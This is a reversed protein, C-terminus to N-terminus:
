FTQLSIKFFGTANNSSIQFTWAGTKDQNENESISFSKRWNMNGYEDIVIDSFSKKDPTLIRIRIEGARCDGNVSMVVTKVTKDVDFTYEKKFSNERITKSFNWVTKEADNGMSHFYFSSMDGIYPEPPDPPDPIRFSRAVNGRRDYIRVNGDDDTNVSVDLDKLEELNKMNEQIDESMREQAKKQENMAKKQERIAEQLEAESEKDRQKNGQGLISLSPGAILLLIAILFVNLKKMVAKNKIQITFIYRYM